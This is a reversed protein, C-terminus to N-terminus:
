TREKIREVINKIIGLTSEVHKILVEIENCDVKTRSM